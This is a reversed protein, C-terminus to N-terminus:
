FAKSLDVSLPGKKQNKTIVLNNLVNSYLMILKTFNRLKCLSVNVM